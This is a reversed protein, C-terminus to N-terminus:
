APRRGRRGPTASRSSRDTGRGWDMGTETVTVTARARPSVPGTARVGPETRRSPVAVGGTRELTGLGTNRFGLRRRTCSSHAPEFRPVHPIRGTGVEPTHDHDPAAAATM